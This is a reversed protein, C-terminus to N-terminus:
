PEDWILIEGKGGALADGTFRRFAGDAYDLGLGIGQEAISKQLLPWFSPQYRCNYYFVPLLKHDNLLIVSGRVMGTAIHRGSQGGIVLTGAKMEYAPSELCDGQIVVLGGRMKTSVMRGANGHIFVQGGKMGLTNGRYAGCAWHGANGRVTIRGGTMQAGLWDGADGRVEISGGAMEAGTHFGAPGDIILEGGTMGQGLRKVRSFDGQLVLCEGEGEAESVQGDLFDGAPVTENGYLLPLALIEELSRGLTNDPRLADAELPLDPQRKLTLTVVRKM